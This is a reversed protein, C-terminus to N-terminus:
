IEFNYAIGIGIQINKFPVAVEKTETIVGEEPDINVSETADYPPKLNSYDVIVRLVYGSSMAYRIGGGVTFGLTPIAKANIRRSFLQEDNQTIQILQDPAWGLSLGALARVDFNFKGANATINPGIHFNMYRWVGYDFYLQDLYQELDPYRNILDNTLDSKYLQKDPNNSGYSVTAGIGLYDDPFIAGDFTFLFGTQAYGNGPDNYDTGAFTGQPLAAGLTLGLFSENQGYLQIQFLPISLVILITSIYKKM